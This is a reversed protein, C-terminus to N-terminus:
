ASPGRIPIGFFETYHRVDIDGVTDPHTPDYIVTIEFVMTRVIGKRLIYRCQFRFNEKKQCREPHTGALLYLKKEASTRLTNHPLYREIEPGISNASMSTKTKVGLTDLIHDQVTTCACIEKTPVMVAAVIICLILLAWGWSSNSKRESPEAGRYVVTPAELSHVNAQSTITVPSASNPRGVAMIEPARIFQSTNDLNAQLFARVDRASKPRQGPSKELLGMILQNLWNPTDNRHARPPKPQQKTHLWMLRAAENGEFPLQGTTMEYMMVGLAYLDVAPTLKQGLWVEPAMYHISGLIESHQTLKSDTPRAVGFDTIKATDDELVLINQPKLDRHLIDAAHIAALGDAMQMSLHAIRRISLPERGVSDDVIADLPTGTVFEMTFYVISGDIGVDFTRVVNPHNVKHMLEVERLFRKILSEDRVLDSHLVKVALHQGGLVRDSAVYVCGMGGSGLLKEITYRGSVLSGPALFNDSQSEEM